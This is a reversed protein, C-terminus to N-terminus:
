RRSILGIANRVLQKFQTWSKVRALLRMVTKPNLYFKLLAKRRSRHLDECSVSCYSKDTNASDFSEKLSLINQKGIISESLPSGYRPSFMNLSLYDYDLETIFAVTDDVTNKTDQPLGLIFHALTQVKLERCRRFVHKIKEKSINKMTKKLIEDSGSEVGFMITHCGSEKMLGLLEDDVTDVRNECSWSFDYKKRIMERCLDKARKMNASFTLDRFWIERIGSKKLDDFEEFINAMDREIYIVSGMPCFSCRFPCGFSTTVSAFPSHRMFPMKYRNLPFLGHRPNPIAFTKPRVSNGVIAKGKSKYIVNPIKGLSDDKKELYQLIDLSSYNMLIADIQPLKIAEDTNFYFVDGSAIIKAHSKKKCLGFFEIDEKLSIISSVALIAAPAFEVVKEITESINLKDAIADIVKIEHRSAIVGSQM